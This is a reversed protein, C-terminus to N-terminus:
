QIDITRTVSAGNREIELTLSTARAFEDPLEGLREFSTLPSGNVAMLIDGEEFSFRGPLAGIAGDGIRFGVLRGERIVPALDLTVLAALFGEGGETAATQATAPRPAITSGREGKPKLYVAERIGRRSVEIRDAYVASLSVGSTLEDGIRVLKQADGSATIIATGKGDGDARVGYLALKLSSEPAAESSAPAGDALTRFFPDFSLLASYDKDQTSVAKAAFTGTPVVGRAPMMLGHSFQVAIYALAITAAVECLLVGIRVSKPGATQGAHQRARHQTGDGQSVAFFSRLRNKM